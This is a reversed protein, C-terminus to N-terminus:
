LVDIEKRKHGWSKSVQKPFGKGGQSQFYINELPKELM